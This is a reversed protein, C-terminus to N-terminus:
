SNLGERFAEIALPAHEGIRLHNEIFWEGDIYINDNANFWVAVKINRVFYNEEASRNNFIYFMDRIWEAQEFDHRGLTTQIMRYGDSTSVTQREGGSGAAFESISWIWDQFYPTYRDYIARYLDEFSRFILNNGFEYKTLGLVHVMSTCPLYNHWEGWNSLPFSLGNPNFIWILNTVGEERFINYLREWTMTFIDPDLLTFIGAWPIWDSDMENNLRFLIPYGYEILCQAFERFHDDYHGNLINFMPTYGYFNAFMGPSFHYTLQLIPRGNFGNGGAYERALAMPFASLQGQFSLSTYTPMIPFHTDLMEELAIHDRALADRFYRYDAEGPSRMSHMFFGWDVHEQEALLDFYAATADDWYDARTPEFAVQENHSIGRQEFRRVSAIMADFEDTANHTAKQVILLFRVYEGAARIIAINYYPMEINENRPIYIDYLSVIFGDIIDSSQHTIPRLRQLRNSRLFGDHGIFRVLWENYQRTWGEIDNGFPSREEHTITIVRDDTRLKTRVGSFQLDAEYDDAGFPLTLAYGDSMNVFRTVDGNDLMFSVDNDGINRPVRETRAERNWYATLGVVDAASSFSKGDAFEEQWFRDAIDASTDSSCGFFPLTAFLTFIFLASMKRLM